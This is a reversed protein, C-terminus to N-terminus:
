AREAASAGALVKNFLAELRSVNTRLSYEQEVLARGRRAREVAAAHDSAVDLIADCIQAADRQEVLLGTDGSRVLEPIGSIRTAIVPLEVAMAEMLTVPIGEMLGNPAVVSPMVLADSARMHQLVDRQDRAGLLQVCDSLELRAVLQELSQRL